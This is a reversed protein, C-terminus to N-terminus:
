SHRRAKGFRIREAMPMMRSTTRATAPARKMLVFGSAPLHQVLRDATIRVMPEDGRHVRKRGEFRLAFSLADAIEDSTAPRLRPADPM